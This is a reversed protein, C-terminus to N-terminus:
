RKSPFFLKGHGGCDNLCFIYSCDDGGRKTERFCQCVSLPYTQICRAVTLTATNSCNNACGVGSCDKIISKLKM